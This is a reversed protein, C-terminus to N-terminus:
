KKALMGHTDMNHLDSIHVITYDNIYDNKYDVKTISIYNNNYYVFIVSFVVVFFLFTFFKFIKRNKM